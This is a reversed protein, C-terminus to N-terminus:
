CSTAPTPDKMLDRCNATKPMNNKTSFLKQTSPRLINKKLNINKNKERFIKIRKEIEDRYALKINNNEISNVKTRLYNWSYAFSEPENERILKLSQSWLM